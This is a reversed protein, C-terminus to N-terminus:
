RQTPPTGLYENISQAECAAVRSRENVEVDFSRYLLRRALAPLMLRFPMRTIANRASSSLETADDLKAQAEHNLAVHTKLPIQAISDLGNLMKELARREAPTADASLATVTAVSVHDPLREPAGEFHQDALADFSTYTIQHHEVRVSAYWHAEELTIRGDNDVDASSGETDFFYRLYDDSRDLADSSKQCGAAWVQPHAAFFGCDVAQAFLGGYCAGSVMLVSSSNRQHAAGIDVPTIPALRGWIPSGFTASHGIQILLNKSNKQRAIATLVSNLGHEDASLDADVKARTFEVRGNVSRSTDNYPRNPGHGFLVVTQANKQEMANIFYNRIQNIRTSIFQGNALPTAASGWFIINAHSLDIPTDSRLDILKPTAKVPRGIARDVFFELNWRRAFFERYIGHRNLSPHNERPNSPPTMRDQSIRASNVDASEAINGFALVKDRDVVIVTLQIPWHPNQPGSEGDLQQLVAVPLQTKDKYFVPVLESLDPHYVGENYNNHEAIQEYIDCSNCSETKAM